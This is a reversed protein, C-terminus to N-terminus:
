LFSICPLKIIFLARFDFLNVFNWLISWWELLFYELRKWHSRTVYYIIKVNRYLRSFRIALYLLDHFKLAM